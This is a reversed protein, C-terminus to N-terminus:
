LFFIIKILDYFLCVEFGREGYYIMMFERTGKNKSWKIIDHYVLREMIYVCKKAGVVDEGGDQHHLCNKKEYLSVVSRQWIM